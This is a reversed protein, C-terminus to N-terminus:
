SDKEVNKNVGHAQFAGGRLIDNDTSCGAGDGDEYAPGGHGVVEREGGDPEEGDNEVPRRRM